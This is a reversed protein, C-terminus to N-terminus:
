RIDLTLRLTQAVAQLTSVQPRITDYTRPNIGRRWSRITSISVSSRFAIMTESRPDSAMARLILTLAAERTLPPPPRPGALIPNQVVTNTTM